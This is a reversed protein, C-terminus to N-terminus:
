LYWHICIISATHTQPNPAWSTRMCSSCIENVPLWAFSKLPVCTLADALFKCINLSFLFSISVSPPLHKATLCINQPWRLCFRHFFQWWFSDKKAALPIQTFFHWRFSNGGATLMGGIVYRNGLCVLRDWTASQCIFARSLSDKCSELKEETLIRELRTALLGVSWDYSTLPPFGSAAMQHGDTKIRKKLRKHLVPWHGLFPLSPRKKPEWTSQIKHWIDVTYYVDLSSSSNLFYFVINNSASMISFRHSLQFFRTNYLLRTSLHSVIWIASCVILM